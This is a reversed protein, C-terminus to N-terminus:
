AREFRRWAEAPNKGGARAQETLTRREARLEAEGASLWRRDIQPQPSSGVLHLSLGFRVALERAVHATVGRAGGTVVWVGAPPREAPLRGGAPRPVIRAVRRTGRAFSVEIADNGSALEELVKAAILKPPDDAPADVVKARIQPFERRLAKVLGCLAGGA